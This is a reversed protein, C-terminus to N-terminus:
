IMEAFISTTSSLINIKAACNNNKILKNDQSLSEYLKQLSVSSM